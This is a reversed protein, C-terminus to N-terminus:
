LETWNKWAVERLPYGAINANRAWLLGTLIDLVTEESEKFRPDPWPIGRKFEADQGSGACIIRNGSSDHCTKQGTELFGRRTM